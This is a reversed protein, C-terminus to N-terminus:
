ATSGRFYVVILKLDTYLCFFTLIRSVKKIYFLSFLWTGLKIPWFGPYYLDFNWFSNGAYGGFLSVIMFGNELKFFFVLNNWAYYFGYHENYCQSEPFFLM